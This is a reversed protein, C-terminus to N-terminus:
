CTRFMNQVAPGASPTLRTIKRIRPSEASVFAAILVSAAIIFPRRPEIRKVTNM